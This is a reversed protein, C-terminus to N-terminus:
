RRGRVDLDPRHAVLKALLRVLTRQESATLGASWQRERQHHEAFADEAESVGAATLDLVVSRGDRHHPRREVVGESVLPKTLNTVGARTMGCLEAVKRSELPGALWLVYMLRFVAWSRGRPRHASAELDYTVVGSARNLSLLLETAATDTIGYDDRLRRHALAVFSWFDLEDSAM